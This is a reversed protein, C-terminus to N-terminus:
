WRKKGPIAKRIVPLFCFCSGSIVQFCLAMPLIVGSPLISAITTALLMGLQHLMLRYANYTGAINAPIVRFLLDPVSYIDIYFGVMLVAYLCLFLMPSDPILLLPLCLFSTSSISIMYRPCVRSSLLGFLTCGLLQAGAGVSVMTTTIQESYGLDAAAVVALVGVMGASFGRFVCPIALQYFIPRRLVQWVTGSNKKEEPKSGLLVKPDELPLYLFNILGSLMILLGAIPFVWPMIVQYTFRAALWAMLLGMTMQIVSSLIGTAASVKGYDEPRYILYPLKYNLLATLGTALANLIGIVLLILYASLDASMHLCLPVYCGYLLGELAVILAFTRFFSGRNGIRTCTLNVGIQVAQTVTTRMYIQSASFGMSNLFVQMLTGSAAAYAIATIVAAALNWFINRKINGM